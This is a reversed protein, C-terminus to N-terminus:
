LGRSKRLEDIYDTPTQEQEEPEQERTATAKKPMPVLNEKQTQRDNETDQDDDPEQEPKSLFKDRILRGAERMVETPTFDPNMEAVELTKSNTLNFLDKDAVIDPYEEKFTARGEDMAKKHAKADQKENVKVAARESIEDVDVPASQPAGNQQIVQSLSEVADNPDGHLLDDVITQALDNADADSFNGANQRGGAPPSVQDSESLRQEQEALEQARRDLREKEEANRRALENAENFRQEAAIRKQQQQQVDELPVLEEVGDIKMRMLPKGQDDVEVFDDLTKAKPEPDEVELNKATAEPDEGEKHMPSKDQLGELDDDHTAQEQSLESEIQAARKEEIEQIALERPSLTESNENDQSDKDLNENVSSAGEQTTDKQIESM